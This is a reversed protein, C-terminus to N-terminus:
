VFFVSNMSHQATTRASTRTDAKAHKHMHTHTRTYAHANRRPHDHECATIRKGVNAFISYKHQTITHDATSQATHATDHQTSHAQVQKAITGPM